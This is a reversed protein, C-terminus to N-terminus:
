LIILHMTIVDDVEPYLMYEEPYFIIGTKDMILDISPMGYYDSGRCKCLYTIQDERLICIYDLFSGNLYQFFDIPM